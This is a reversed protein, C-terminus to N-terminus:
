KKCMKLVHIKFFNLQTVKWKLNQDLIKMSLQLHIFDQIYYFYNYIYVKLCIIIILMNTILFTNLLKWLWNIQYVLWNIQYVLTFFTASVMPGRGITLFLYWWNYRGLWGCKIMYIYFIYPSGPRVMHPSWTSLVHLNASLTCM